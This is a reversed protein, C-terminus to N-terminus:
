GGGEPQLEMADVPIMDAGEAFTLPAAPALAVPQPTDGATFSGAGNTMAVAAALVVAAAKVGHARMSSMVRLM